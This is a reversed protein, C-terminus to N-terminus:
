KAKKIVVRARGRGRSEVSVDFASEDEKGNLIWGEDLDLARCVAAIVAANLADNGMDFTNRLTNYNICFDGGDNVEEALRNLSMNRISAEENLREKVGQAWKHNGM